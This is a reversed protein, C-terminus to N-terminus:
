AMCDIAEASEVYVQIALASLEAAAADPEIVYGHKELCERMQPAAAEVYADRVQQSSPQLQYLKNVWFSHRTTCASVVPNIAELGADDDALVLYAPIVFGSSQRQEYYEVTGGGSTVCDMEALIASLADEFTLIGNAQARELIELQEDSAQGAKADAITGAVAEAFTLPDTDSELAGGTSCATCLVMAMLGVHAVLARRARKM